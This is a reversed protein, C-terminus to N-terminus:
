DTSLIPADWDRGEVTLATVGRVWAHKIFPIVAQIDDTDHKFLPDAFMRRARRHNKPLRQNVIVFDLFGNWAHYSSLLVFEVPVALEVAVMGQGLQYESLLFAATGVTPATGLRGNCSHWCWLPADTATCSTAEALHQAMWKYATRWNAPTELWSARYAAPGNLAPVVAAHQFTWLRVTASANNNPKPNM